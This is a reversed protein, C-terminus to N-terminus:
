GDSAAGRRDYAVELCKEILLRRLHFDFERRRERHKEIRIRGFDERSRILTLRGSDILWQDVAGLRAAFFSYVPTGLVAAERNMTGGASIVVDSFYILHRGDFPEDPILANPPLHPRIEDAQAPTRPFVLLRAQEFRGLHKLLDVFLPNEFRHYAAMTAPPRVTVLVHEPGIELGGRAACARVREVFGGDPEYGELYVEEKLGVYRFTRRPSAGHRRLASEPLTAPVMVCDALRFSIHNAPQYEYDMMTVTPIRLSWSAVCHAYSNHSIALDFRRRRAYRRLALGRGLISAIKRLRNGGGHVGITEAELGYVRALPLTQAFDRATIDVTHGAERLDGAIPAFFLVHPSNALDIWIRL